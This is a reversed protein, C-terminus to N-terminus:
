GNLIEKMKDLQDEEDFCIEELYPLVKYEMIDHWWEEPTQSTDYDCFYSHGIMKGEGLLPDNMIINNVELLKGIIADTFEEPLGRSTLFNHFTDGYEPKLRIFAFRRRLAYDIHALSRDATNMLGIIYLNSPVFFLDDEEGYTLSIAYKSNRKDAEILMLLEGFVKSLNGRNIEDIIFFYKEEPHETATKCFRYFIGNKVKFGERDPRIGQVFDEYSYSQHFQVMAIHSDNVTGMTAYALKRALFTKGVGPAGQLIINKNRQLQGVLNDFGNESIFPKDSDNAFSYTDYEPEPEDFMNLPQPVDKQTQEVLFQYEEETLQFLSGQSGRCPESNRFTDHQILEHWPAEYKAKETIRFEIVQGESSAHLSKTIECFAKIRKTPTTEYCILLDGAKVEKFYKFVKRQNGNDNYATYTQSEGVKLSDVAWYKPNANLWFHRQGNGSEEVVNSGGCFMNELTKVYDPYKTIDTLTKLVTDGPAEWSGVHTWKVSRINKYKPYSDDFTYDGQVIGRGIIKTKGQKAFVIDGPKVVHTFEWLALGDNMFSSNVDPYVEKLKQKIEDLNAYTRLDGMPHWGICMMQKEQCLPWQSANEGPAYMWYRIPEDEAAKDTQEEVSPTAHTGKYYKAIYYELDITLTKMLPDQYYRQGDAIANDLLTRLEKDEQIISCLEDYLGMFLKINDEYRGKRFVLGTNLRKAAEKVLSFQYIYYKDPYRLWLYVSIAHEGQYHNLGKDFYTDLLQQSKAKFENMREYLQKSEDFLIRFMQRVEEADREAFRILMARPFNNVTDLLNLTDGLSRTLMGPLDAADIDWNDQFSKIAKWKYREQEKWDESGLFSKYEQLITELALKDIM